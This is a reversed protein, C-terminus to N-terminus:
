KNRWISCTQRQGGGASSLIWSQGKPCQGRDLLDAKGLCCRGEEGGGLM